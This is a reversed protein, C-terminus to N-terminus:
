KAKKLSAVEAKLAKVEAAHDKKAEKLADKGENIKAMLTDTDEKFGERVKALRDKASQERKEAKKIDEVRTEPKPGYNPEINSYINAILEFANLMGMDYPENVDAVEKHQKHIWFVQGAPEVIGREYAHRNVDSIEFMGDPRLTFMDEFPKPDQLTIEYNKYVKEAVDKPLKPM